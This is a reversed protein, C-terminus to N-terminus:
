SPGLGQGGVAMAAQSLGECQRCIGTKSVLACLGEYKEEMNRRAAALKHRLVADSVGFVDCSERASLDLVDRLVLAAHEEPELSQSVCILCYSIHERLDFVFEQEMMPAM